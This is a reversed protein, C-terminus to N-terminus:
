SDVNVTRSRLAEANKEIISKIGPKIEPMARYYFSNAEQPMVYNIQAYCSFSFFSFLPLLLNKM